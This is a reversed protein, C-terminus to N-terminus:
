ELALTGNTCVVRKIRSRYRWDDENEVDYWAELRGSFNIANISACNYFAWAGIRELSSPLTLSAISSCGSFASNGISTVTDPIEVTLLSTYGAFALNSIAVVPKGNLKEPIRVTFNRYFRGSLSTGTVQYGGETETFFLGGSRISYCSSLLSVCAFLFIVLIIRSIAKKM